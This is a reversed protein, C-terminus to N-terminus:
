IHLGKRTQSINDVLVGANKDSVKIMTKVNKM